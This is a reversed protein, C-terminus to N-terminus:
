KTVERPPALGHARIDGTDYVDVTFELDPSRPLLLFEFWWYGEQRGARLDYGRSVDQHHDAVYGLAKTLATDV